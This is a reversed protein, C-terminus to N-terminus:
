VLVNTPDPSRRTKPERLVGDADSHLGTLGILLSVDVVEVRVRASDIFTKDFWAQAKVAEDNTKYGIFGFRRSTGDRKNAVKVDTLTGPPADAQNFHQQLRETTIYPPLNKIILRSM